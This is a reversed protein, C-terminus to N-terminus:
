QAQKVQETVNKYGMVIRNFYRDDDVRSITMQVYELIHKENYRRFIINYTQEKAVRERIHQERCEELYMEYDEPIVYKDSFERITTEYDLSEKFAYQMSKSVENNLSYPLMKKLEFDILYISNYGESLGRIVQAARRDEEARLNKDTSDDVFVCFVNGYTETHALRGYDMIWRISGDYRKIRYEVYDLNSDSSDICNRIALESKEYDEPYVFGRFSGGTMKKFQEPNECGCMNLMYKNLYIIEEDGYAKYIFFGGPLHDAIQGIIPLTEDNLTLEDAMYKSFDAYAGKTNSMIMDGLDRSVTM